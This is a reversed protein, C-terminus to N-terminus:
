ESRLWDFTDLLDFNFNLEAPIDTQFPLVTSSDPERTDNIAKDLVKEIIAKCGKCLKGNPGSPDVWDLFGVLLSLKQVIKSRSLADKDAADPKPKLLHMCLTGGAPAAFSMVLWECDRRVALLRDLHTWCYLTHTVMEFSIALLDGDDVSGHRLLLREILFLNQLHELRLTLRPYLAIVDLSSIMLDDLNQQLSRPFQCMTDSARKKLLTLTHLIVPDTDKGLAVTFIDDRISAIMAWARISTTTYVASEQNWGQADLRSAKERLLVLDLALDGDNLDLPLPTTLYSSNMTPPRGTFAVIVINFIYVLTFIIRKIEPSITPQYGPRDAEAHFGLFTLLSAAEGHLRWTALSSDGSFVSEVIMLRYTLYLMLSNGTSLQKCLELCAELNERDISVWGDVDAKSAPCDEDWFCILIGISEWRMNQGSFQALWRKPDTEEDSFPTATNICLQHALAELHTVKRSRGLIQGFTEYLSELLHDAVFKMWGELPEARKRFLYSARTQEPVRKLLELCRERIKTTMLNGPTFHPEHGDANASLAAGSIDGTLVGVEKFVESFSTFGLYGASTPVAPESSPSQGNPTIVPNPPSPSLINPYRRRRVPTSSEQDVYVCEQKRRVCTSCRPRSHDCAVKRKKCAECAPIKGNAHRFRPSTALSM